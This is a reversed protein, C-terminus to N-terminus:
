FLTSKHCVSLSPILPSSICAKRGESQEQNRTTPIQESDLQLHFVWRQCLLWLPGGALGGFTSSLCQGQSSPASATKGLDTCSDLHSHHGQSQGRCRIKATVKLGALEFLQGPEKDIAMIVQGPPQLSPSSEEPETMGLTQCTGVTTGQEGLAQWGSPMPAPHLGPTSLTPPQKNWRQSLEWDRLVLHGHRIMLGHM